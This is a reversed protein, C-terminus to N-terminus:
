NILWNHEAIKIKITYISVLIVHNITNVNVIVLIGFLNRIVYVMTLKNKANVGANIMMGFNNIIVFAQM